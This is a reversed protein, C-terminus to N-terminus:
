VARDVYTLMLLLHTAAEEVDAGHQQNQDERRPGAWQARVARLPRVVAAPPGLGSGAAMVLGRFRFFLGARTSMRQKERAALRRIGSAPVGAVRWVACNRRGRSWGLVLVVQRRFRARTQIGVM